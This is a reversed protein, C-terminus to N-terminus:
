ALELCHLARYVNARSHCRALIRYLCSNYGKMLLHELNVVQSTFLEPENLLEETYNVKKLEALIKVPDRWKPVLNSMHAEEAWSQPLARIRVLENM